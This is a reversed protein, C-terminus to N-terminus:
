SYCFAILYVVRYLTLDQRYYEKGSNGESLASNLRQLEAHYNAQAAFLSQFTSGYTVVRSDWLAPLLELLEQQCDHLPIHDM